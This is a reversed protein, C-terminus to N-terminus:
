LCSHWRFYRSGRINTRVGALMAEPEIFYGGGLGIQYGTDFRMGVNTLETKGGGGLNGGDVDVGLLDAKLLADLYFGETLYTAYAGLIPGAIDWRTGGHFAVSTDIYGGMLGVLAADNGSIVNDWGADIGSVLGGLSLRYGRDFSYLRGQSTFRETSGDRKIWAGQGKVWIGPKVKCDGGAANAGRQADKIALCIRLDAQRDLWVTASSQNWIDQGATLAMPMEFAGPGFGVTVLEHQDYSTPSRDLFLDWAFFGAALPKDLDFDSENTNGTVKVVPIGAFNPSPAPNTNHVLVTTHGSADGNILLTDSIGASGGALFADVAVTSNGQGVFTAGSGLASCNTGNLM